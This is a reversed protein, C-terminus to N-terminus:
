VLTLASTPFAPSFSLAKRGICGRMPLHTSNLVWGEVEGGVVGLEGTNARKEM